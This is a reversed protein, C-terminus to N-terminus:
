WLELSFFERQYTKPHCTYLNRIGVRILRMRLLTFKSVRKPSVRIYQEGKDSEGKHHIQEGKDSEGM